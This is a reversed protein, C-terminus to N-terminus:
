HSQKSQKLYKKSGENVMGILGRSTHEVAFCEDAFVGGDGVSSEKGLEIYFLSHKNAGNAIASNKGKRRYIIVEQKFGDTLFLGTYRQDLTRSLNGRRKRSM